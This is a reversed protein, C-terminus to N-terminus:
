GVVQDFLYGVLYAIVGGVGAITLNEFGAIIPNTKTVLSKVAGVIYLGIATLVAAIVFGTRSSDVFVFPLVAPLSGAAFFLASAVMAASPSREESDVMGFEMVKMSNLLREDDSSFIAVAEELDTGAIGLEALMHRLQDVEMDRHDRIHDRELKLERALVETQSKTALYEGAGM